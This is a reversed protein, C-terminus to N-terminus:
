PGSRSGPRLRGRSPFGQGRRRVAGSRGRLPVQADGHRGERIQVGVEVGAGPGEDVGRRDRDVCRVPGRRPHATSMQYGTHSVTSPYAPGSGAGKNPDASHHRERRSRVVAGPLPRQWLPRPRQGLSRRLSHQHRARRRGTGDVPDISPRPTRSAGPTGLPSSPLLPAFAYTGDALQFGELVAVARFRELVDGGRSRCPSHRDLHGSRWPRGRGQRRPARGPSAPSHSSWTAATACPLCPLSNPSGWPWPKRPRFALAADLSDAVARASTAPALSGASPQASVGPRPRHHRRSLKGATSVRLGWTVRRPTCSASSGDSTTSFIQEPSLLCQRTRSNVNERLGSTSSPVASIFQRALLVLVVRFPLPTAPGSVTPEKVSQRASRGWPGCATCM